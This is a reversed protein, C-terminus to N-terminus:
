FHYAFTILQQINIGNNPYSWGGNSYHLYRYSIEFQKKCGFAFGGGLMDQFLLHSGFQHHGFDRKSLVAPGISAELFPQFYQAMPLQVRFTPAFALIYVHHNGSGGIHWYAASAHFYIAGYKWAFSSPLFQYSVRGGDIKDTRNRGYSFAIGQWAVGSDAFVPFAFILLFIAIFINRMTTLNM